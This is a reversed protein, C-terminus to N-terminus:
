SLPTSCRALLDQESEDGHYPGVWRLRDQGDILYLGPVARVNLALFADRNVSVTAGSSLQEVFASLSPLETDTVWTVRSFGGSRQIEREREAARKCFPCDASFSVVMRCPTDAPPTKPLQELPITAGLAIDAVEIPASGGDGAAARVVLHLATLAVCLGILAGTRNGILVSFLSM